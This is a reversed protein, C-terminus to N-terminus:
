GFFEKRLQILVDPYDTYIAEVIEKKYELKLVRKMRFKSNVGWVYCKLGNEIIFEFNVKDRTRENKLNVALVIGRRFTPYESFLKEHIRIEPM